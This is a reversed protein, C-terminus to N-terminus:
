ERAGAWKLLAIVADTDENCPPDMRMKRAASLATYGNCDRANVNAGRQLLLRTMATERGFAAWLLPTRGNDDSENVDAGRDLLMKVIDLHGEDVAWCLIPERCFTWDMPPAGSYGGRNPEPDRGNVDRAGRILLLRVVTCDGGYMGAVLLSTGGTDKANPDAGHSLLASILAQDRQDVALELACPGPKARDTDRRFWRIITAQLSVDGPVDALSRTNPDAGQNLLRLATPIDYKGTVTDYRNIAAILDDNLHEQRAQRITVTAIAAAALVLLCVPMLAFLRRSSRPLRQTKRNTLM